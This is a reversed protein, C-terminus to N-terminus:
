SRSDFAFNLCHGQYFVKAASGGGIWTGNHRSMEAAQSLQQCSLLHFPCALVCIAQVQVNVIHGDIDKLKWSVVGIGEIKLGSSIGKV